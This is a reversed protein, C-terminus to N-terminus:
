DEDPETDEFIQLNDTVIKEIRIVRSRDFVKIDILYLGSKPDHEDPEYHYTIFTSLDGISRQRNPMIDILTDKM